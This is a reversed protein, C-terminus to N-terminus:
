LALEWTTLITNLIGTNPKRANKQEKLTFVNDVVRPIICYFEWKANM